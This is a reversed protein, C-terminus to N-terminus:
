DILVRVIVDTQRELCRRENVVCQIVKLHRLRLRSHSYEDLGTLVIDATEERRIFKDNVSHLWTHHDDNYQPGIVYNSLM